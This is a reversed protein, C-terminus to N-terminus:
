YGHMNKMHETRAAAELKAIEENLRSIKAWDPNEKLLEREIAIHKKSVKARYKDYIEINKERMKLFEKQDEPSLEKYYGGRGRMQHWQDDSRNFGCGANSGRGYGGWAFSTASVIVLAGLLVTMKKM